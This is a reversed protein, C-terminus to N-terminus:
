SEFNRLRHHFWELTADIEAQTQALGVGPEDDSVWFPLASRYTADQREYPRKTGLDEFGESPSLDMLRIAALRPYETPRNLTYSPWDDDSISVHGDCWVWVVKFATWPMGNPGHSRERTYVVYAHRHEYEYNIKPVPPPPPPLRAFLGYALRERLRWDYRRPAPPQETETSLYRRGITIERPKVDAVTALFADVLETAARDYAALADADFEPQLAAHGDRNRCGQCRARGSAFGRYFPGDPQNVFSQGTPHTLVVPDLGSVLVAAQPAARSVDIIMHRNCVRQSCSACTAVSDTGCFVCPDPMRPPYRGSSPTGDNVFSDRPAIHGAPAALKGAVPRAGVGHGGEGISAHGVRYGGWRGDRLRREAEAALPEPLQRFAEHDTRPGPIM